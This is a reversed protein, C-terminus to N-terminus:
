KDYPILDAPPMGIRFKWRRRKFWRTWHWTADSRHWKLSRPRHDSIDM